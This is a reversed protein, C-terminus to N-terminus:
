KNMRRNIENILEENTFQLLKNEEKTEKVQREWILELNYENFLDKLDFINDFSSIKYIKDINYKSLGDNRTLDDNYYELKLWDDIYLARDQLVVYIGENSTEVVMFDKLMDKTFQKNQTKTEKNMYDSWDIIKYDDDEYNIKSGRVLKNKFYESISYCSDEKSIDWFTNSITGNYAWEINYEKLKNFFDKAIYEEKCWVAIKNNLKLFDDFNFEKM